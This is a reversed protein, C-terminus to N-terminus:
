GYPRVHCAPGAPWQERLHGRVAIVFYLINLEDAHLTREPRSLVRVPTQTCGGGDEVAAVVRKPAVSRRKVSTDEVADTRHHIKQAAERGGAGKTLRKEARSGVYWCGGETVKIGTNRLSKM